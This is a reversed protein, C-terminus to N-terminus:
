LVKLFHTNPREKAQYVLRHMLFFFFSLSWQGEEYREESTSGIYVHVHVSMNGIYGHVGTSLFSLHQWQQKEHKQNYGTSRQMWDTQNKILDKKETKSLFICRAYVLQCIELIYLIMNTWIWLISLKCYSHFRFINRSRIKQIFTQRPDEPPLHSLKKM